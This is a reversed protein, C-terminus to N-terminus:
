DLWPTAAGALWRTWWMTRGLAPGAIGAAESLHSKDLSPLQSRSYDLSRNTRCQTVGIHKCDAPIGINTDPFGSENLQFSYNMVSLYNPKFNEYPNDGGHFLGLTHGLEHMLTGAQDSAWESDFSTGWQSAICKISDAFDARAVCPNGSNAGASMTVIFDDGPIEGAGTAKEPTAPTAPDSFQHGFISYRAVLHRAAIINVCNPSARDSISGFYGIGAGSGCPGSGTKVSDFSGAGVGNWVVVPIEPIAEGALIHLNVGTSGDPNMVPAGAFANVVAATPQQAAPVVLPNGSNPNRGPQHTHQGAAISCDGAASITGTCMYDIEVFVDKRNPNASSVPDLSSLDLDVVGDSNFDIGFQEWHDLLGDGDTDLHAYLPAPATRKPPRIPRANRHARPVADPMAYAMSGSRLPWLPCGEWEQNWRNTADPWGLSGCRSRSDYEAFPDLWKGTRTICSTSAM